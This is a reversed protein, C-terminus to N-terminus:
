ESKALDYEAMEGWKKGIKVGVDMPVVLPYIHQMVDAIKRANTKVSQQSDKVEFVLDDHIQLLLRIDDRKKVVDNWIKVMALKMLEAATGQIPYNMLVRKTANDLFKQQPYNKVYRRRGLMTEVVDRTLGEKMYKDYFEKIKPFNTYFADIFKAADEVPIQLGESMGYSSMGYIIGFNITKAVSRQEKTVKDYPTNFLQAATMKHVDQNKKFAEILREEGTLHALIRLEQQSYDFSLLTYGKTAVFCSKIKLGYESGVPINQLNPNSSSLRGTNVSVQSYTTHIKGGEDTKELLTDTYTTILKSLERYKLIEAIIPFDSQFKLLELEGTAYQGSKTKSLPVQEKEALYVGVQAPSSLNIEYGVKSLIKEKIKELEKSLEEKVDLLCQKDIAIGNQEMDSLVSVLPMEIGHFLADLKPNEKLIAAQKEALEDLSEVKYKLLTTDLQPIGRGESLLFEAIMCDFIDSDNIKKRQSKFDWVAKSM